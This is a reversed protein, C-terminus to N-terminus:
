ARVQSRFHYGEEEEESAFIKQTAERGLDCLVAAKLQTACDTSFFGECQTM